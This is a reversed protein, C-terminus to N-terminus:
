LLLLCIDTLELRAPRGLSNWSLWPQTFLGQRLLLLFSFPRQLRDLLILVANENLFLWMKNKIIKVLRLCSCPVKFTIMSELHSVFYCKYIYSSNIKFHNTISSLYSAKTSNRIKGSPNNRTRIIEQGWFNLTIRYYKEWIECKIAM